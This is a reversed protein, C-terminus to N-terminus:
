EGGWFLAVTSCPVAGIGRDDDFGPSGAGLIIGDIKMEIGTQRNGLRSDDISSEGRARENQRMTRANPIRHLHKAVSNPGSDSAIKSYQLFIGALTGSHNYQLLLKQPM